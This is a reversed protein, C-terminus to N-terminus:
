ENLRLGKNAPILPFGAPQRAKQLAFDKSNASVAYMRGDNALFLDVIISSGYLNRTFIAYPTGKFQLPSLNEYLWSEGDAQMVTINGATHPILKTAGNRISVTQGTHASMIAVDQGTENKIRLQTTVSCGAMCVFSLIGLLVFFVRNKMRESRRRIGM